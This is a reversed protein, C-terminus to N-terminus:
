NRQYMKRDRTMLLAFIAAVSFIFIFQIVSITLLIPVNVDISLYLEAKVSSYLLSSVTQWAGIGLLLGLVTGPLLICLNSGLIYAIRNKRPAGLTSMLMVNKKQQLPFLIFYLVALVLSASVGVTLARRAVEDYAYLSEAIVSYGQDYCVFLGDYGADAVMQQFEDVSGNKLVYTRFFAQDSYDMSGTVSSEPVFITNPTFSYLDGEVYTWETEDRYLGVITYSEKDTLGTTSTYFYPAPEVVGRGDKIYSQYPVSWDYIYYNMDITDGVGIGNKAALTESIICVREGSDLEEQTFDRGEVIRANERAFDAIYGLKQVGIVPFAHSNIEIHEIATRWEAGEESALFAEVGDPVHAITPVSYREAYEESSCIVTEGNENIYSKETIPAPTMSGDTNVTYINEYYHEGNGIPFFIEKNGSSWEHDQYYIGYIIYKEGATLDLGEFEELNQLPLNVTIYYGTPNKYGDHLGVASTIRGQLLINTRKEVQTVANGVIQLPVYTQTPEGIHNLKFELVACTYPAGAPSPYPALPDRHAMSDEYDHEAFFDVELDPIYASALGPSAVAKVTDTNDNPMESLWNKVEEPLQSTTANITFDKGGGQWTFNESKRYKATILAITTFNEDLTNLTNTAVSAQGIAVCSFAVMAVVLLIGLVSVIPRRFANKISLM